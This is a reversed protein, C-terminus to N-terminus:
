DLIKTELKEKMSALKKEHAARPPAQPESLDM